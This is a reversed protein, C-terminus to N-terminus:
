MACRPDARLAAMFNEVAGKREFGWATLLGLNFLAQADASASTINRRAATNARALLKVRESDTLPFCAPGEAASTSGGSGSGGSGRLPGAVLLAAAILCVAAVGIGVTQLTWRCHAPASTGRHRAPPPYAPLPERLAPSRARVADVQVSGCVGAAIM